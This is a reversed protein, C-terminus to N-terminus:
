VNMYGVRRLKNMDEIFLQLISSFGYQKLLPYTVVAILQIAKLTARYKPELNALTYYFLALIYVYTIHVCCYM